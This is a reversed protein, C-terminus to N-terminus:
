TERNNDVGKASSIADRITQENETLWQLTTRIHDVAELTYQVERPSMGAKKASTNLWQGRVLELSSLQRSLGIKEAM